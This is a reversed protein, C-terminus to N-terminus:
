PVASSRRFRGAARSQARRRTIAPRGQRAGTSVPSEADGANGPSHVLPFIGPKCVRPREADVETRRASTPRRDVVWGSRRNQTKQM